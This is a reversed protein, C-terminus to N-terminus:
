FRQTMGHLFKLMRMEFRTFVTAM